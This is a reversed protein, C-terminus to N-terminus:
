DKRVPIIIKLMTGVNLVSQIETIGFEEGYLFKIRYHVNELGIGRDMSKGIDYEVSSYSLMARIEELREWSMGHGNDKIIFIVKDDEIVGSIEIRGVCDINEIGHKVANEVVPQLILKPMLCKKIREDIFMEVQLREEYRVKIIYLYGSVHELENEVAVFDRNSKVSYRLMDALVMCTDGIQPVKNIDALCSISELTNYLFHPNIRAQLANLEAEKKIIKAQYESKILDNIKRIMSNFGNCLEGVEDRGGIDVKVEMNGNEAIKMMRTLYSIPKSITRAFLFAIIASLLISFAGLIFFNRRIESVGKLVNEQPIINIYTWGSYDSYVNTIIYKKDNIKKLIINKDHKAVDDWIDKEVPKMIFNKDTHYVTNGYQDAIIVKGGNEVDVSKCIDEIATENFDILLTGVSKGSGISVLERAISFLLRDDQIIFSKHTGIFLERGGAKVANKYWDANEQNKELFKTTSDSTNNILEDYMTGDKTFIYLATVQKKVNRISSFFKDLELKGELVEDISAHKGNNVLEMLKDYSYYLMSFANMESLNFEVNKKVQEIIQISSNTAQKEYEVSYIYYTLMGSFVLMVAIILSNTLILKYKIHLNQM